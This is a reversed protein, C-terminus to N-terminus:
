DKCRVRLLYQPVDECIWDNSFSWACVRKDTIYKKLIIYDNTGCFTMAEYLCDEEYKCSIQASSPHGNIYAESAIYARPTCSSTLIVINTIIFLVLSKM